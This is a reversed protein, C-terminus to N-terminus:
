WGGDGGGPPRARRLVGGRSFHPGLNNVNRVVARPDGVRRGKPVIYSSVYAKKVGLKEAIVAAKEGQIWLDLIQNDTESFITGRVGKSPQQHAKPSPPTEPAQQGSTEGAPKRRPAPPGSDIRPRTLVKSDSRPLMERPVGGPYYDRVTCGAGVQELLLRITPAECHPHEPVFWTNTLPDFTPHIIM